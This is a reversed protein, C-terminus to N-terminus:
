YTEMLLGTKANYRMRQDNPKGSVRARGEQDITIKLEGGADMRGGAGVPAAAPRAANGANSGEDGFLQNYTNRGLDIGAGVVKGIGNTVFKMTEVLPALKDMIWDIGSAFVTKLTDWLGSFFESVTDWHKILMYAAAGLAVIAAVIWTIPNALLATGFSIFAVEVAYIIAPLKWMLVAILDGAALLWGLGKVVGAIILPLKGLGMTLWALGLVAQGLVMLFPGLAALILGTYLIFEKMPAPLAMFRDVLKQTINVIREVKDAMELEDWLQEGLPAFVTGLHKKLRDFVGFISGGRREMEDFFVGGEETMGQMAEKMQSFTIQGAEAMLYIQKPKKDLMESLQAIIPVNAKELAQLEGVGVKIALRSDLYQDVMGSVANGSGAAVQGLMRLREMTEEASYGANLLRQAATDIDPLDFPSNKSFEVLQKVFGDGKEASRLLKEYRLQLQEVQGASRIAFGGLGVIPLTLRTSFFGGAESIREGAEKMREGVAFVAQGMAKMRAIFNQSLRQVPATIKDVAELIFKLNLNNM